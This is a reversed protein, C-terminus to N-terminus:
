KSKYGDILAKLISKVLQFEKTFLNGQAMKKFHRKVILACILTQFLYPLSIGALALGESWGYDKRLIKYLSLGLFVEALVLTISGIIGVFIMSLPTVRRPEPPTTLSNFIFSKLDEILTKMIM